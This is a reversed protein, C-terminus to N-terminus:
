HRGKGRKPKAPPCCAREAIEVLPGCMEPRGGCCDAVLFALLDRTGEQDVSYIISRSERRSNVLGAAALIGLHTSMTNAPVRLIDALAGAAMGDPGATVLLRFARLRTSQALAALSEIASKNDM